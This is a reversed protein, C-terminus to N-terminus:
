IILQYIKKFNEGSTMSKGLKIASSTPKLTLSFKQGDISYYTIHSHTIPVCLWSSIFFGELKELKVQVM